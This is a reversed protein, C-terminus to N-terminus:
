FAVFKLEQVLDDVGHQRVIEKIWDETVDSMDVGGELQQGAYERPSEANLMGARFDTDYLWRKLLEGNAPNQVDFIVEDPIGDSEGNM